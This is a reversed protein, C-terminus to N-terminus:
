FQQELSAAFLIATTKASFSMHSYPNYVVDGATNSNANESQGARAKFSSVMYGIGIDARSYKDIQYGAGLTYLDASAIPLLLDVRNKPVSSARPEYGARLVIADDFQYEFGYASSWVSKYGRPIRLADPDSDNQGAITEIVSALNLFDVNRDFKFDLSNWIKYDVWKLDMNFKLKPVIRISTGFNVTQPVKYDLEVSGKEIKQANIQSTGGLLGLAAGLLPTHKLSNMTALFEDSNIMKFDGELTTTSESTYAFGFALWDEPEWLAGLNFSLSLPNDLELELDGVTEYPGILSLDLVDQISQDLGSMTGALFQLTQEPARFKTKIGMGQWSFGISAGVSLEDNVQLGISPAFYTLRSVSVMYGNYAAPDDKEREYGVAQPSYFATAFTWGYDPDEIAIGGFPVALAPVSTLGIGPLILAADATSSKTNQVPDMQFCKSQDPNVACSDGAGGRADILDNYAKRLDDVEQAGFKADLQMHAMLFKLQRERGKIKALGAPNFHISDVGPPDATVAHALGLAKANGITINNTIQAQATSAMLAAGAIGVFYPLAKMRFMQQHLRMKKM